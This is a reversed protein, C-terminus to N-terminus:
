FRNISFSNCDIPTPQNLHMALITQATIAAHTLGLHQHGFAFYCNNKKDIVPLSDALTPRFGMWESSKNTNLKGNLMPNALPLFNRARQMNAPRKLGAYEVTGALRLGTQMPTMIFRRDASSVPIKLRNVEEPLMLHYGRETELPVEIAYLKKVLEKSYAGTALVINEALLLGDQYIIKILNSSLHQLKNVHCYEKIEGGLKLFQNKLHNLLADLNLIHGTNPYFIGGIQTNSLSPEMDHLEHSNLWRNEVGIENLYEGQKQLRFATSDKEAVLLSGQIKLWQQLNWKKSFEEWAPLAVANLLTLQQHIHTFPKKRMNALLRVGWPALNLLYRWDVRLPGLEDFLMSPINKLISPDAVPFVQETAIHGANGRSAGQAIEDKDVLLVNIKQEQLVLAITLGIIGGGVVVFSYHKEAM